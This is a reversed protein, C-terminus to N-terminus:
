QEIEVKFNPETIAKVVQERTIALVKDVTDISTAQTLFIYFKPRPFRLALPERSILRPDFIVVANAVESNADDILNVVNRNYVDVKFSGVRTNEGNKLLYVEGMEKSKKINEEGQESKNFKVFANVSLLGTHEPKFKVWSDSRDPPKMFGAAMKYMSDYTKLVFGEAMISSNMNEEMFSKLDSMDESRLDAGARPVLFTFPDSESGDMFIVELGDRSRGAMQSSIHNLIAKRDGLSCNAENGRANEYLECYGYIPVDFIAIMPKVGEQIDDGIMLLTSKISGFEAFGEKGLDLAVLEADFRTGVPVLWGGTENQFYDTLLLTLARSKYVTGPKSSLVLGEHTISLRVRVGDWKREVFVGTSERSGRNRLRDIVTYISLRDHPTRLAPPFNALCIGGQVAVSEIKTVREEGLEIPDRVVPLQKATLPVYARRLEDAPGGYELAPFGPELARAEPELAPAEPELAPAGHEFAFMPRMSLNGDSLWWGVQKKAFDVYTREQDYFDASFNFDQFHFIKTKTVEWQPNFNIKLCYMFTREHLNNIVEMHFVLSPTQTGETLRANGRFSVIDGATELMPIDFYSQPLFETRNKNPAMHSVQIEIRKFGASAGHVVRLQATFIGNKNPITNELFVSIGVIDAVRTMVIGDNKFDLRWINGDPHIVMMPPNPKSPIWRFDLAIGTYVLANSFFVHITEGTCVAVRSGEVRISSRAKVEVLSMPRMLNIRPIKTKHQFYGAPRSSNVEWTFCDINMKNGMGGGYLELSCIYLSQNICTMCIMREVPFHIEVNKLHHIPENLNLNLTYHDDRESGIMLAKTPTMMVFLHGTENLKQKEVVLTKKSSLFLNRINDSTVIIRGTCEVIIKDGLRVASLVREEGQIEKKEEGEVRAQKFAGESVEEDEGRPNKPAVLRPRLKHFLLVSM